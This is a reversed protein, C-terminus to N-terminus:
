LWDKLELVAEKILGYVEQHVDTSRGIPDTIDAEPEPTIFQKLNFVRGEAQPIFRLIYNKQADEMTFIFDSSLVMFKDLRRASFSESGLNEKEELIKAVHSSIGAGPLASIGASFIEYRSDFYPKQRRLYKDLLLQAMPSRCSNGTCVFLIRKKVFVKAIDQESIIGQRLVRFPRQTADVVTSPKAEPITGSDVLLDIGQPFFSEVEAASVAEKHGNTNASSLYLGAPTFKLIRKAVPHSPVRVGIKTSDFTYYIITLPGPWFKEALRYGFPTMIDFYNNLVRTPTDLALSFLKDQPRKKLVALKELLDSRGALVALGYVTETPFAVVGGDLIIRAAKEILANDINASDITIKEM